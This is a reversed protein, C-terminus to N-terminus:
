IKRFIRTHPKPHYKWIQSNSELFVFVTKIEFNCFHSHAQLFHISILQICCLLFILMKLFDSSSLYSKRYKPIPVFIDRIETQLLNYFCSVNSAYQNNSYLLILFYVTKFIWPDPSIKKLFESIKKRFINNNTYFYYMGCSRNIRNRPKMGVRNVIFFLRFVNHKIFPNLLYCFLLHMKRCFSRVGLYIKM